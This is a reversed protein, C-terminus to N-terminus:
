SQHGRSSAINLGFICAFAAIFFAIGAGGSLNRGIYAGLALCGLTLAVLGM